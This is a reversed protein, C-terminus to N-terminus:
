AFSPGAYGMGARLSHPGPPDDPASGTSVEVADAGAAECVNASENIFSSRTMLFANAALKIMEASAVDTRVMPAEIGRYLAEIAVGDEEAFAGFVIRDPNM